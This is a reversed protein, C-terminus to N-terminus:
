DMHGLVGLEEVAEEVVELLPTVEVKNAQAEVL